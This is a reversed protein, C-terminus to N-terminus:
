REAEEETESLTNLIGEADSEFFGTWIQENLTLAERESDPIERGKLWESCM